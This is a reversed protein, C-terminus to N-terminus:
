AACCRQAEPQTGHPDAADRGHAGNIRVPVGALMAAPAYEIASLNYSHLIAPKLRRLLKWLAAHTGLSLGPQKHLAYVAM